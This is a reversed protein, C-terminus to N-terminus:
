YFVVGNQYSHKLVNLKNKRIVEAEMQNKKLVEPSIDYIQPGRSPYSGRNTLAPPTTDSVLNLDAEKIYKKPIGSVMSQDGAKSAAVLKSAASYSSPFNKKKLENLHSITNM